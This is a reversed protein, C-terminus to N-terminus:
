HYGRWGGGRASHNIVWCLYGRVTVETGFSWRSWAETGLNSGPLICIPNGRWPWLLYYSLCQSSTFPSNIIWTLSKLIANAWSMKKKVWYWDLRNQSIYRHKPYEPFDDTWMEKNLTSNEGKCGQLLSGHSTCPCAGAQWGWACGCNWPTGWWRM